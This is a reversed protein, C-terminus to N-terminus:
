QSWRGIVNPDGAYEGWARALATLAADSANFDLLYERHARYDGATPFDEDAAADLALHGVPDHRDVQKSLWDAFTM